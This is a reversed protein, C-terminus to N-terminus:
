KNYRPRLKKLSAGNKIPQRYGKIISKLGQEPHKIATKSCLILRQRTKQFRNKMFGKFYRKNYRPM